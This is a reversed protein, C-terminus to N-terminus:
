RSKMGAHGMRCVLRLRRVSPLTCEQCSRCTRTRGADASTPGCCPPPALEPAHVHARAPEEQAQEAALAAGGGGLDAQELREDIGNREEGTEVERIEQRTTCTATTAPKKKQSCTARKCRLFHLSRDVPGKRSRKERYM